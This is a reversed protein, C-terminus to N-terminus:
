EEYQLKPILLFLLRVSQGAEADVHITITDITSQQRHQFTHNLVSYFLATTNEHFKFRDKQVAAPPLATSPM